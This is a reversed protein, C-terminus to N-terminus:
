HGKLIGGDVSISQGTIYGAKSSSLFATLEGIEDPEGMRGAPVSQKIFEESLNLGQLRETNTYGPLVLNITIGYKAYENSISRALGALGARLGNSTTLGPLPEKAAVSTIFIIRGHAQNKMEPLLVKLSEVVSLWLSQFDTQWQETTTELFDAKRPGGTNAVFIDIGGIKKIAERAIREGEGAMTLDGAIFSNANIEQMTKELKKEDRSSICVTAGERALIKAISKGIGSSAGMVLAKKNKLDLEM